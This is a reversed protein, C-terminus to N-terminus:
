FWESPPPIYIGGPGTRRKQPKKPPKKAPKAAAKTNRGPKATAQAPPPSEASAASAAAWESSAAPAPAVVPGPPKKLLQDPASGVTTNASSPAIALPPSQPKTMALTLAFGLVVLLGGGVWLPKPIRRFVSMAGSPAPASTTSEPASAPSASSVASALYSTPGSASSPASNMTLASDIAAAAEAATQVRQAPDKALLREVLERVPAPVSDPLSAPVATIQAMLVQTVDDAAFPTKGTIMEYLMVGLAYLDARHDVAHGLAQEPSMYDPTGIITGMRTIQQAGADASVKAVGFDLVKVWDGGDRELLMVNDPKLDRHVIGAAHAAGLALAVQRAIPLARATPLSGSALLSRLRQGAVYELVLYFTGDALRGFDLAGAVNPHEVRGAAIAEREFRAVVEEVGTLEKHLVKLAVQKRTHVHFARYVAGMAGSGILEDVRFRDAVVRGVLEGGAQSETPSSEAADNM